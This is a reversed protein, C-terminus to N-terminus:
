AIVGWTAPYMIEVQTQLAYITLAIALGVLVGILLGLLFRTM